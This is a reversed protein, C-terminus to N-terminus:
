LEAPNGLECLMQSNSERSQLATGGEYPPCRRIGVLDQLHHLLLDLVPWSLLTNPAQGVSGPHTPHTAKDRQAETEELGM